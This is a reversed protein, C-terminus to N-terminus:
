LRVQAVEQFLALALSYSLGKRISYKPLHKVMTLLNIGIIKINSTKSSNFLTNPVVEAEVVIHSITICKM